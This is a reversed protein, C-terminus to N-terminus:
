ICMKYVEKIDDKTYEKIGWVKALDFTSDVLSDIDNLPIGADKFSTPSGIKEFWEKFTRIGKLAADKDREEKIDFINRAFRAFIKTKKDVMFNMWGPVVISLSAGHAIDYYAGLVHGFMHCPVEAGAVGATGLGNWALSASWMLNARADYDEPKDLLINESEIITKVLGEVYRDQVPFWGDNHTFYGELLHMCADVASYATYEKPITYTVTPDLISVKPYLHEDIFGFKEKTDENTIVTGGNMESATAPITLVTLVPIAKEIKSAGSFFDWVNGDYLIGAAIAKATDIVSGGGVALIFEINKKRALDIGKNVHSLVPNSKVGSFELIELGEKNLSGIVMDYVKNKKISGKGYVLMLKNGYDKAYKGIEPIRNKGFIIKTPICLDFDEM